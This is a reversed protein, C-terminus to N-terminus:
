EKELLAVTKHTVENDWRLGIIEEGEYFLPFRFHISKLFRGNTLKDEYIEIRDIFSNMFQKM